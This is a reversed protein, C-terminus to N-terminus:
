YLKKCSKPQNSPIGHSWDASPQSAVQLTTHM